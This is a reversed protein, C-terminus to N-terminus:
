SVDFIIIALKVDSKLSVEDFSFYTNILIDNKQWATGPISYIASLLVPADM